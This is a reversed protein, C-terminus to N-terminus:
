CRHDVPVRASGRWWRIAAAVFLLPMFTVTELMLIRIVKEDFPPPVHPLTKLWPVPLSVTAESFPWFISLRSDVYLADLLFHSLWVAILGIIVRRYTQRLPTGKLYLGVVLCVIAVGNVLISHSFALRFHGWYPLPWDPLSAASITAVLIVLRRHLKDTAPMCLVGV